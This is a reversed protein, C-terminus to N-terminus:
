DVNMIVGTEVPAGVVLDLTAKAIKFDYLAQVRAQKAAALAVETQTLDLFSGLQAGYRQSALRLSEEALVARAEAARGAARATELELYAQQVEYCLQHVLETRAAEAARLNERARQIRSQLAFGTFVPVSFGVGVVWREGDVDAQFRAYGASAVATVRPWRESRAAHLSAEAARIGQSVAQLDPRGTLATETLDEITEAVDTELSVPELQYVTRVGVGMARNLAAYGLRRANEVRALWAEAESVHVQALNADLKSRLEVEFYVQAQRATLKREELTERAVALLEEAQLCRYYTTRVLWVIRAREAEETSRLSAATFRAVEVRNRTRGFDYATYSVNVADAFKDFFPSAPLGVLGLGGTAGSLGDKAIGQLFVQPYYGARAERVGAEAAQTEHQSREIRPHNELAIIIAQDVSLREPPLAEQGAPVGTQVVWAVAAFGLMKKM